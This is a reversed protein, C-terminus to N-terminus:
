IILVQCQLLLVKFSLEPKKNGGKEDGKRIGKTVKVYTIRRLDRSKIRSKRLKTLPKIPRHRNSNASSCGYPAQPPVEDVKLYEHSFRTSEREM